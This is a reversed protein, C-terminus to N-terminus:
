EGELFILHGFASPVHFDPVETRTPRWSLYERNPEKGAVRFLNLGWVDGIKPQARSGQKGLMPQYPVRLVGFWLKRAEDLQVRVELESEWEFDVDQRPSLIHVDVWQGIPGVEFEFYESTLPPRLFVEFVDTEWLQDIPGDSGLEPKVNLTDYGCEFRFFLASPNWLAKVRTWNKWQPNSRSASMGNWYRDIVVEHASRWLDQGIELLTGGSASTGAAFLSNEAM